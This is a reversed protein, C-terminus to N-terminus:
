RQRDRTKLGEGVCDVQGSREVTVTAGERVVVVMMFPPTIANHVVKLGKHHKAVRTSKDRDRALFSGVLYPPPGRHRLTLDSGWNVNRHTNHVCLLLAHFPMRRPSRGVLSPLARDRYFPTNLYTSPIFPRIDTFELPLHENQRAKASATLFHRLDACLVCCLIFVYDIYYNAAHEEM